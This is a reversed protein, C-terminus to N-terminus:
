KESFKQYFNALQSQASEISVPIFCVKEGPRKQSLRFLDTQIVTGLVPYGGITQRDKMLVIPQGSNPCQITGFNVPKSLTKKHHTIEIRKGQLRYGMRNSNTGIVYQQNLLNHQQKPSLATWITSPIFRLTLSGPQHFFHVKNQFPSSLNMLSPQASFSLTRNKALKEEGFGLSYENTAQSVSGLWTRTHFGGAIALYTHLQEKPLGLSLVEGKSLQFPQNNKVHHEKQNTQLITSKCEAGTLVLLCDNHAKLSIQGLTIEIATCNQNNGLLNNALLFSYEDAAGSGSFGLHQQNVRGLDQLSAYGTHKTITLTNM